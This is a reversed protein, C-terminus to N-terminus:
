SVWARPSFSSHYPPTFFRSFQVGQCCMGSPTGELYLKAQPYSGENYYFEALELDTQSHAEQPTMWGLCALLVVLRFLM